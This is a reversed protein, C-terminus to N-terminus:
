MWGQGELGKLKEMEVAEWKKKGLLTNKKPWFEKILMKRVKKEKAKKGEKGLGKERLWKRGVKDINSKLIAKSMSVDERWAVVHEYTRVEEDALDSESDEDDTENNYAFLCNAATVTGIPAVFFAAVAKADIVHGKTTLTTITEM